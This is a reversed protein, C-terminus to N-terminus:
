SDQHVTGKGDKDMDMLTMASFPKGETTKGALFFEYTGEGDPRLPAKEYIFAIEWLGVDLRVLGGFVPKAYDKNTESRGPGFVLSGEEPEGSYAFRVRARTLGDEYFICADAITADCLPENALYQDIQGAAYHLTEADIRNLDAGMTSRTDAEKQKFYSLAASNMRRVSDIRQAYRFELLGQFDQMRQWVGEKHCTNYQKKDFHTAAAAYPDEREELGESEGALPHLPLYMQECPRGFATWVTTMSADDTFDYIMSEVTTGTCIRRVCTDHPSAGLGFRIDSATGEYHTSMVEMLDDIGLTRSAKVYPPFGDTEMSWPRGLLMQTAYKQRLTNEPHRYTKPDQYVKAFDFDSYEKDAPAYWGKQVAYEILNESCVANELKRLGHVTYHNSMVAVADDPIRCGIYTKGRVVQLMYADQSDAFFYIRGASAYGYRDLLTCAIEMAEKASHAQEAVARRLEYVIGDKCLDPEEVDVRSGCSSDSVICVGKENLFCDSTSLGGEAGTIQVWAYGLTHAVQPIRTLGKEAPLLTGEPWDAAPVYHHKVKAHLYDDENHALLVKGTKSASKGVVVTMCNAENSINRHM